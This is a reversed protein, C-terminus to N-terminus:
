TAAAAKRPRSKRAPASGGQAADYAEIVAAPLRGRDGVNLGSAQAWVRITPLDGRKAGGGSSAPKATAPQQRPPRAPATVTAAAPRRGRRAGGRGANVFTKLQSLVDELVSSDTACVDIVYNDGDWSLKRSSGASESDPITNGCVDCTVSYSVVQTKAM